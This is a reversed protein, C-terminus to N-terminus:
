SGNGRRPRKAAAAAAGELLPAASAASAGIQAKGSGIRQWRQWDYTYGRSKAVYGIPLPSAASAAPPFTASGIRQWHQFRSAAHSFISFIPFNQSAGGDVVVPAPSPAPRTMAGDVIMASGMKAAIPRGYVNLHVNTSIYMM